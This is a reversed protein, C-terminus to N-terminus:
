VCVYMCVDGGELCFVTLTCPIDFIQFSLFFFFFFFIHFTAINM